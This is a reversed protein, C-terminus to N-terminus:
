NAVEDWFPDILHRTGSDCLITAVVSGFPLHQALRIAAFVNAGASLGVFIGAERALRRTTAQADETSVEVNDDALHPDYIGPVLATAMHKMGELGHMPLDPQVSICQIDPNLERLKRTTGTFTGSTGIGTIFHTLREETQHWLEPATTRYHALWNAPNNYQDPYFYIGPNADVLRRAEIQAGDSGQLPDTEILHAGLARLIRKREPSANKSICLHVQYGRAAGILAYSIGANGSTADLIIKDHTLRGREEGDLIISLIGRDKVSGSPNLYEAKAYLEVGAPVEKEFARLRLLPTNGIQDILDHTMKLGPIQNITPSRKMFIAGM